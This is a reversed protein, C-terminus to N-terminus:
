RVSSFSVTSQIIVTGFSTRGNFPTCQSVGHDIMLWLIPNTISSIKIIKMLSETRRALWRGDLARGLLLDADNYPYPRCHSRIGDEGRRQRWRQLQQQQQQPNDAIHRHQHVSGTIQGSLRSFSQTNHDDTVTQRRSRDITLRVNISLCSSRSFYDGDSSSEHADVVAM